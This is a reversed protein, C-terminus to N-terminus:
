SRIGSVELHMFHPAQIELQWKGCPYAEFYRVLLYVYFLTHDVLVFLILGATDTRYSLSKDKKDFFSLEGSYM